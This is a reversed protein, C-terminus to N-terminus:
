SSLTLPMGYLSKGLPVVFSRAPKNEV